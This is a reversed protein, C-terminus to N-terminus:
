DGLQQLFNWTIELVTAGVPSVPWSNAGGPSGGLLGDGVDNMLDFSVLILRKVGEESELM